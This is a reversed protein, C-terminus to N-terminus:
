SLLWLAALFIFATLAMNIYFETASGPEIKM